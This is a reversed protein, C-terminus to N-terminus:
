LYYIVQQEGARSSVATIPAVSLVPLLQMPNPHHGGNTASSSSASLSGNTLLVVQQSNVISKPPSSSKSSTLVLPVSSDKSIVRTGSPLTKPIVYYLTTPTQAGEEGTGPSCQLTVLQQQQPQQQVISQANRLVTIKGPDLPRHAPIVIIPKPAEFSRITSSTATSSPQAAIKYIGSMTTTITGGASTALTTPRVLEPRIVGAMPKTIFRPTPIPSSAQLGLGGVIPKM